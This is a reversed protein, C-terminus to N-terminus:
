FANLLSFISPSGIAEGMQERGANGSKESVVDKEQKHKKKNSSGNYRYDGTSKELPKRNEDVITGDAQMTYEIDPGLPYIGDDSWEVGVTRGFKYKKRERFKYLSLKRFVSRDVVFKKGAPVYIEVEVHQLRYKSNRDVAFGNGLDLVNGHSQVSYQINSARRAAETVNRGYGVKRISAHYSSDNSKLVVISVFPLKVTDETLDWGVGDDNLWSFRGKYELRQDTVVVNLRGGGPQQVEVPVVASQITSVDQTLGAILMVLCVWGFAWLTGFIWGLYGGRSRVNMVRRVVWVILALVPVVVFFFLTGWGWFQQLKSTWLFNNIPWWAVGGFLLALLGVFLAFAVTGAIFLFFAKFLVGIAHGIGTGGRRATDGVESAFSRGRNQAFERARDGFEQASTKVEEGWEKMRDRMNGMGEQVNQRISNVDVKEGRMEMKDYPTRAEPLVIWLIVYALCFTSTLSGFLINPFFDFFHNWTFWNLMSLLMSLILPAAFILRVNSPRINFYAALGGAVGGIIRDDPNRFLRKGGYSDLDRTPLIMWLLIYILFGLGFGGFTIIAFLIRVIAPDVNLYNAIGSCVGGVFKDSNDRYLRGRARRYQQNSQQQQQQQSDSGARYNSQAQPEAEEAVADFDEPRGMSRIIEEVDAETVAPAGKRVKDNMLEAIRSEIDNIIEDRGEEHAFYRRLSDVYNQLKEYAADEIPIVRGSLNINIIKKM